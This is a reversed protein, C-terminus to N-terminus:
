VKWRKKTKANSRTRQGHVPSNRKQRLGQFSGLKIQNEINQKMNFKLEAGLPFSITNMIRFLRTKEISSFKNTKIKSSVGLLACFIKARSHGIGYFTKLYSIISM